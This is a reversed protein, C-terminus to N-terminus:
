TRRGGWDWGGVRGWRVEERGTGVGCADADLEDVVDDVGGEGEDDGGADVGGVELVRELRLRVDRGAGGELDVEDAGRALVGADDRLRRLEGDGLDRQARRRGRRGLARSRSRRRSRAGRRSRSRPTSGAAHLHRGPSTRTRPNKSHTNRSQQQSQPNDFQSLFSLYNM